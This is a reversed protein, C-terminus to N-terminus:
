FRPRTTLNTWPEFRAVVSKYKSLCYEHKEEAGGFLHQFQAKSYVVVTKKQIKEWESNLGLM